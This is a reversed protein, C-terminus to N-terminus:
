NLPPHLTWFLNLCERRIDKCTKSYYLYSLFYRRRLVTKCLVCHKRWLYSRSIIRRRYRCNYSNKNIWPIPLGNLMSRSSFPMIVSQENFVWCGSSNSSKWRSGSFTIFLTTNCVSNNFSIKYSSSGVLSTISTVRACSYSIIWKLTLLFM